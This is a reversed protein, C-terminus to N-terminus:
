RYSKQRKARAKSRNPKRTERRRVDAVLLHRDYTLFDQKLKKSGTAQVLAKAITLRAAEAQSHWGGGKVHVHIDYQKSLDGAIILPEQVFLRALPNGYDEVPVSNIRIIGSGERCSARAIARKRKGSVVLAKM